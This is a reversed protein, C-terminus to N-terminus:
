KWTLIWSIKSFNQLIYGLNRYFIINNGPPKSPISLDMTVAAKRPSIIRHKQIRLLYYVLLSALWHRILLKLCQYIYPQLYEWIFPLRSPGERGKLVYIGQRGEGKELILKGTIQSTKETSSARLFPFLSFISWVVSLFLNKKIGPELIEFLTHPINILYHSQAM